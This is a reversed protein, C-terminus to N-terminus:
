MKRRNLSRNTVDFRKAGADRIGDKVGGTLIRGEGGKVVSAKGGGHASKTLYKVTPNDNYM